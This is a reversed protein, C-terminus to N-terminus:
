GKPKVKARQQRRVVLASDIAQRNGHNRRCTGMCVQQDDECEAACKDGTSCSKRCRDYYEECISKCQAALAPEAACLLVAVVWFRSRSM